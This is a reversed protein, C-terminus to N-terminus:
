KGSRRRPGQRHAYLQRDPSQIQVLDGQGTGVWINGEQDELLKRTFNDGLSNSDLPNERYVKMDHGDYRILGNTTAFWIFGHRDKLIELVESHEIGSPDHRIKQFEVTNPQASVPLTSVISFLSIAWIQRLFPVIAM